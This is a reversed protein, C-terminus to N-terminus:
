YLVIIRHNRDYEIQSTIYKLFDPGAISLINLLSLQREQLGGYPKIWDFIRKVSKLEEKHNRRHFRQSKQKLYDFQQTILENNKRSIDVIDKDISELHEILDSYKSNFEKTFDDFLSEIDLQEKDKLLAREITLKDNCIVTEVTLDLNRLEATLSGSCVTYNERPLIIPMEMDFYEYVDKLQAFYSAEGPGAVYAVTPFYVDQIVPRLIVNTSFEEPHNEILKKIEHTCFAEREDGERVTFMGDEHIIPVREGREFYYLGTAGKRPEILPSFGAKSLSAGKEVVSQIIKDSRTIALKLFDTGLGRIDRDMPDVVILGEQAFLKLYIRAFWQSLTENDNISSEFVDRCWSEFESGRIAHDAEIMLTKVSTNIDTWGVPEKIYSYNHLNKFPNNNGCGPKKDVKVKKLKGDDILTTARAEEFDHDESALWFIPVVDIGYAKTLERAKKIATSAKYLTFLPGGLVGTQQGTVVCLTSSKRLKEINDLTEDSAGMSSNLKVLANSLENRKYQVRGIKDIRAKWANNDNPDYTYYHDRFDKEELYAKSIGNFISKSSCFSEM